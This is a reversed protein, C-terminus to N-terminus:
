ITDTSVRKMIVPSLWFALLVRAFCAIFFTLKQQKKRFCHKPHQIGYVFNAYHSTLRWRVANKSPPSVICVNLSQRAGGTNDHDKATSTHSTARKGDAAFVHYDNALCLFLRIASLSKEFM